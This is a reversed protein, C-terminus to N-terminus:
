GQRKLKEWKSVGSHCLNGLEGTLIWVSLFLLDTGKNFINSVRSCLSQIPNGYHTYSRSPFVRNLETNVYRNLVLTFRRRYLDWKFSLDPFGLLSSYCWTRHYTHLRLNRLRNQSWIFWTTLYLTEYLVVISLLCNKKKKRKKEYPFEVNVFGISGLKNYKTWLFSTRFVRLWVVMRLVEPIEWQWMYNM